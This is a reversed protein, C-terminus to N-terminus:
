LAININEWFIHIWLNYIVIEIFKNDKPRWQNTYFEMDKPTKHEFTTSRPRGYTGLPRVEIQKELLKSELSGIGLPRMELVKNVQKFAESRPRGIRLPRITLAENTWEFAM